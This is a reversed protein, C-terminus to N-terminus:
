RLSNVKATTAGRYHPKLSSVWFRNKKEWEDLCKPARTKLVVQRVLIHRAM